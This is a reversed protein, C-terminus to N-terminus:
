RLTRDLITTKLDDIRDFLKAQVERDDRVHQDFRTLFDKFEERQVSGNVKKWVYGVPLVLVGALRKAAEQWFDPDPAAM